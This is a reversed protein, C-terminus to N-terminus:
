HRFVIQAYVGRNVESLITTQGVFELHHSQLLNQGTISFEWSANPRWGLRADMTAYSPVNQTPLNQVYRSM